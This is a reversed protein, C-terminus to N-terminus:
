RNEPQTCTIWKLSKNRAIHCYLLNIRCNNLSDKITFSVCVADTFSNLKDSVSMRFVSSSKMDDVKFISSSFVLKNAFLNVTRMFPVKGDIMILFSFNQLIKM